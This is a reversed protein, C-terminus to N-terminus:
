ISATLLDKEAMVQLGMRRPTVLGTVSTWSAKARVMRMCLLAALSKTKILDAWVIRALSVSSKFAGPFILTRPAQIAEDPCQDVALRRSRRNGPRGLILQAM